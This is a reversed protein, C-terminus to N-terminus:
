WSKSVIPAACRLGLLGAALCAAVPPPVSSAFWRPDLSNLCWSRRHGARPQHRLSGPSRRAATRSNPSPQSGGECSRGSATPSTVVDVRPSAKLRVGAPEPPNRRTGAPEPPVPPVPAPGAGVAGAARGSGAELTMFPKGGFRGDPRGGTGGRSGSSRFRALSGSRAHPPPRNVVNNGSSM